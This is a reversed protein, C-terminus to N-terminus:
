SCAAKTVIPQGSLSVQVCRQLPTHEHSVTFQPVTGGVIRGNSRYDVSAPGTISVMPTPARKAIAEGGASIVWGGKWSGVPAMKVVTNQKIAESRARLLSTQLDSAATQVRQSAALERFMPIAAMALLGLVALATIMEVLTFGAPATQRPASGLRRRLYGFHSHTAM